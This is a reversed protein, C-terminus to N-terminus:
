GAVYDRLAGMADDLLAALSADPHDLWADYATLALALSVQAVTQPFLDDVPLDRRRAVYAAIV